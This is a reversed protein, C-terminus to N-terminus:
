DKVRYAMVPNSVLELKNAEGNWKFIHVAHGSSVEYLERLINYGLHSYLQADKDRARAISRTEEFKLSSTFYDKLAMDLELSDIAGGNQCTLVEKLHESRLSIIFFRKTLDYKRFPQQFANEISGWFAYASKYYLPADILLIRDNEQFKEAATDITEVVQRCNSAAQAWENNFKFQYTGYIIFLISVIAVGVAKKYFSFVLAVFLCSSGAVFFSLYQPTACMNNILLLIYYISCWIIGVTFLRQQVIRRFGLVLLPVVCIAVLFLLIYIERAALAPPSLYADPSSFYDIVNEPKFRTALFAYRMNTLTNYLKNDLQFHWPVNYGGMFNGFAMFRTAFYIGTITFFLTIMTAYQKFAKGLFLSIGEWKSLQRYDEILSYCIIMLPVVIASEKSFLGLLYSLLSSFLYKRSRTSYYKLYLYFSLLAFLIGLLTDISAKYPVNTSHVPNVAFLLAGIFSLADSSTFFRMLLFVIWCIIFFFLISLAHYSLPNLGFLNYNLKLAVIPIPRLFGAGKDEWNDKYAGPWIQKVYDTYFLKIFFIPGKNYSGHIFTFDDAIFYSNLNKINLAVITILLLLAYLFTFKVKKM